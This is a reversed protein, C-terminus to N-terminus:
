CRCDSIKFRLHIRAYLGIALIRHYVRYCISLIIWFESFEIEGNKQLIRNKLASLNKSKRSQVWFSILIWKPELIHSPFTEDRPFYNVYSYNMKIIEPYFINYIITLKYYNLYSKIPIRNSYYSKKLPHPKEPFYSNQKTYKNLINIVNQFM